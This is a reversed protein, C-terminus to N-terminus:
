PVVETTGDYGCFRLAKAGTSKLKALFVFSPFVGAANETGKWDPPGATELPVRTRAFNCSAAVGAPYARLGSTHDFGERGNYVLPAEM